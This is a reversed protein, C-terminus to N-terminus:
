QTTLFNSNEILYIESKRSQANRNKAFLNGECYSHLFTSLAQLM